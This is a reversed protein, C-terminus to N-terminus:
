STAEDRHSNAELSTEVIVATSDTPYVSLDSQQTKELVLGLTM